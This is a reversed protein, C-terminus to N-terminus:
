SAVKAAQALATQLKEDTDVEAEEGKTRPGDLLGDRVSSYTPIDAGGGLHPPLQFAPDHARIDDIISTRIREAVWEVHTQIANRLKNPKPNRAIYKTLKDDVEIGARAALGSGDDNTRTHRALSPGMVAALHAKEAFVRWAARAKREDALTTIATTVTSTM